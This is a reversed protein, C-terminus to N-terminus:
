RAGCPAAPSARSNRSWRDIWDTLGAARADAEKRRGILVDKLEELMGTDYMLHYPYIRNAKFTEKMAAIRRASAEPSNLGGHAYFLLHDYKDSQALWQATM